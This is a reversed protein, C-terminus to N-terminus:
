ASPIDTALTPVFGEAPNKAATFYDSMLAVLQEDNVLAHRQLRKLLANGERVMGRAAREHNSAGVVKGNFTTFHLGGSRFYAFRRKPPIHTVNTQRERQQQAVAQVLERQEKTIIRRTVREAVEVPAAEQPVARQPPHALVFQSLRSRYLSIHHGSAASGDVALLWAALSGTANISASQPLTQETIEGDTGIQLGGATHVFQSFRALHPVAYTLLLQPTSTPLPPLLPVPDDTNFWRARRSASPRAAHLANFAKPAGFTCLRVNDAGVQAAARQALHECVAGGLSHGVFVRVAGSLLGLAEATGVFIDACREFYANRPQTPNALLDGSYGSITDNAHALNSCGAMYAVSVTGGRAAYWAPMDPAAPQFHSVALSGLDALLRADLAAKPNLGSVMELTTAHHLAHEPAAPHLTLDM